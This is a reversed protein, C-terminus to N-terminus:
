DLAYVRFYYRRSGPTVYRQVFRQRRRVGDAPWRVSGSQRPSNGSIDTPSRVTPRM